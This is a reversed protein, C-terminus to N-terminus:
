LFTKFAFFFQELLKRKLGRQRWKALNVETSNRCDSEFLEEMRKAFKEDMVIAAVELNRAISLHDLNYSGISGWLGDIVSTKSHLVEGQYEFIRVGRRLLGDFLARSAHYVPMVDTKV